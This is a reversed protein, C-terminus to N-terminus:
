LIDGPHSGPHMSGNDVQLGRLLLFVRFLEARSLPYASTKNWRYATDRHIGAAIASTTVTGAVSYAKLFRDQKEATRKKITDNKGM